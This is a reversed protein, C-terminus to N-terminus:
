ILLREPFIPRLESANFSTVSNGNKSITNRPIEANKIITENL